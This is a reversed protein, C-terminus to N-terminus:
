SQGGELAKDVDIQISLGDVQIGKDEDLAKNSKGEFDMCWPKSKFSGELQNYLRTADLSNAAFFDADITVIVSDGKGASSHQYAAEFRRIGVRADEGLEAFVDMALTAGTLASQPQKIESVQGLEKSLRNIELKLQRRIEMMEEFKTRELDQGSQALAAYDALAQPPDPLRVRRPDSPNPFMYQNSAELWIQMDGKLNKALNGEDRWELQKEVVIYRVFLLTFLLLTFVAMPLEVREFRGTFRLEERRLSPRLAGGGFGRLAAGFAIPYRQAGELESFEFPMTQVPVDLLAGETMGPMEQGCVYVKRIENTTRAASLTRQLERRIRQVSAALRETGDEPPIPEAVEETGEVSEPVEGGPRSQAAGVRIARLSALRRGDAVAVTTATDGVHILVTGADEELLGGEFAADFLATGELEADLADLGARECLRLASGLRDKPVATVLLSSEVGPKSSLTLFDVVVQDIDFQPLNGEVEFKIVEEIKDRDDFPLTLNRFAAIGSDIALYVSDARLKHEKVVERLRAVVQQAADEAVPIEGSVACVLKHKKLGGDLAVLHFCREGLHIGISQAM